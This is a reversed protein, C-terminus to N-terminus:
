YSHDAVSMLLGREGPSLAWTNASSKRVRASVLLKVNLESQVNLLPVCHWPQENPFFFGVHNANMPLLPSTSCTILAPFSLIKVEIRGEVPNIESKDVKLPVQKWSDNTRCPRIVLSEDDTIARKPKKKGKTQLWSARHAAASIFCFFYFNKWDFLIWGSLTKHHFTSILNIRNKWHTHTHTVPM